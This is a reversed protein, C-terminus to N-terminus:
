KVETDIGSHCLGTEKIKIWFVAVIQRHGGKEGDGKPSFTKFYFIKSKLSCELTIIVSNLITQLQLVSIKCPLTFKKIASQTIKWSLLFCSILLVTHLWTFHLFCQANKKWLFLTFGTIGIHLIIFTVIHPQGLYMVPVAIVPMAALQSPHNTPEVESM